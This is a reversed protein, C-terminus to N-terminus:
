KVKSISYVLKICDLRGKFEKFIEDGTPLKNKSNEPHIKSSFINYESKFEMEINEIYKNLSEQRNIRRKYFKDEKEEEEEGEEKEDEEEIVKNEEEM